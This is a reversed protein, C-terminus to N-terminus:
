KGDEWTPDEPDIFGGPFGIHGDFRLQMMISAKLDYNWLKGDNKCWLFAHSAHNYSTDLKSALEYSIDEFDQDLKLWVQRNSENNLAANKVLEWDRIFEPNKIFIEM